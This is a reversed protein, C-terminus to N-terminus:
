AIYTYLAILFKDTLLKNFSRVMCNWIYSTEVDYGPAMTYACSCICHFNNKKFNPDAPEKDKKM